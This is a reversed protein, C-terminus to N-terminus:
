DGNQNMVHPIMVFCNMVRNMARHYDECFRNVDL